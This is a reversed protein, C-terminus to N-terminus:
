VSTHLARHLVAESFVVCCQKTCQAVSCLVACYQVVSFMVANTCLVTCYQVVSFMVAVICVVTFVACYQM